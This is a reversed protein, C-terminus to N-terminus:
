HFTICDRGHSKFKDFSIFASLPSKLIMNINSTKWKLSGTIISTIMTVKKENTLINPEYYPNYLGYRKQLFWEGGYQSIIFEGALIILAIEETATTVGKLKRGVVKSLCIKLGNQDIEKFELKLVKKLFDLFYDVNNPLDLIRDKESELFNRNPNEIPFVDESLINKLINEDKFLIGDSRRDHPIFIRKGDKLPYIFGYNTNLQYGLNKDFYNVGYNSRLILELISFPKILIRNM